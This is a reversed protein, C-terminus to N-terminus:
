AAMMMKRALNCGSSPRGIVPNVQPSRNRETGPVRGMAKTMATMNLAMYAPQAVGVSAPATPENTTSTMASTLPMRQFVRRSASSSVAFSVTIIKERM